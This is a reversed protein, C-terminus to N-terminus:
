YFLSCSKIEYLSGNGNFSLPSCWSGKNDNGDTVTVEIEAMSDMTAEEKSNEPEEATLVDKRNTKSVRKRIFLRSV